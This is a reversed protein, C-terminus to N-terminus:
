AGLLKEYNQRTKGYYKMENYVMALLMLARQDKPNKLILAELQEAAKPLKKASQYTIALLYYAGSFTADLDLTKLLAAEAKDWNSQAAFIRGELFKAGASKPDRKIQAQVRALAAPFQKAAIDLDVLQSTIILDEPV